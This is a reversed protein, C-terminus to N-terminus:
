WSRSSGGGGSSGGGSSGGSSGGSGSSDRDFIMTAITSLFVTLASWFTKKGRKKPVQNRKGSYYSNLEESEIIKKEIYKDMFSGEKFSNQFTLLNVAGNEKDSKSYSSVKSLHVILRILLFPLAVVTSFAVFAVVMLIFGLIGFVGLLIKQLTSTEDSDTDSGSEERSVSQIDGQDFKEKIGPSIENAFELVLSRIGEDYKGEKFYPIAYDDQFRGTKGDPLIGELGYGVEVRSKAQESSVVILLGDDKEETGIEWKEFLKLAYETEDAYPEFSRTTVVVIEGADQAMLEQNIAVIINKTEESLLSEGDAYYRETREPLSDASLATQSFAPFVVSFVTLLSMIVIIFSKKGFFKGM